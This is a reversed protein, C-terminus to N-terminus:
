NVDATNELIINSCKAADLVLLSLKSAGHQHCVIPLLLCERPASDVRERFASSGVSDLRYLFNWTPFCHNNFSTHNYNSPMANDFRDLFIKTSQQNSLLNLINKVAPQILFRQLPRSILPLRQIVAYFRFVLWSEFLWDLSVSSIYDSNHITNHYWQLIFWFVFKLLNGKGHVVKIM